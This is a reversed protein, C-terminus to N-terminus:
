KGMRKKLERLQAEAAAERAAQDVTRRLTEEADSPASAAPPPRVGGRLEADKLQAVMEEVEREALLLEARQTEVKRELLTVHERHRTAFRDAVAVTEADAIDNALRGRRIADALHTREVALEREVKALDERMKAVAARGEVAAARMRAVLDRM